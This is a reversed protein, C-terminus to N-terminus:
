NNIYKITVRTARRQDMYMRLREAPLNCFGTVFAGSKESFLKKLPGLKYRKTHLGLRMCLLPKALLANHLKKSNTSRIIKFTM